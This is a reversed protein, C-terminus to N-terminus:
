YSLEATGIWLSFITIIIIFEWPDNCLCVSFTQNIEDLLHFGYWGFCCLHNDASRLFTVDFVPVDGGSDNQIWWHVTSHYLLFDKTNHKWNHRIRVTIFSDADYLPDTWSNRQEQVHETSIIINESCVGVLTRTATGDSVTLAEALVVAAFTSPAPNM